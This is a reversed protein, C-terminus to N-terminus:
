KRRRRILITSIALAGLIFIGEFGPTIVDTQDADKEDSSESDDVNGVEWWCDTFWEKGNDDVVRLSVDYHGEYQFVYSVSYEWHGFASINTTEQHLLVETGDPTVITIKIEIDMGHDFFSDIEFYMLGEENVDAYNEQEISLEFEPEAEWVNWCCWNEWRHGTMNVVELKAHHHGPEM